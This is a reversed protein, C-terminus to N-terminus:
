SALAMARICSISDVSARVVSSEARQKEERALKKRSRAWHLLTGKEVTM